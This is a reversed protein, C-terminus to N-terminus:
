WDDEDLRRKLKDVIDVLNPLMQNIMLQNERAVDRTRRRDANPQGINGIRRRADEAGQLPGVAATPDPHQRPSIQDRRPGSRPATRRIPPPSIPNRGLAAAPSRRASTTAPIQRPLAPDRGLAAAPSRRASTTASIILCITSNHAPSAWRLNTYKSISSYCVYRQM